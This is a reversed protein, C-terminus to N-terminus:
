SPNEGAPTVVLASLCVLSQGKCCARLSRQKTNKAAGQCMHCLLSTMVGPM